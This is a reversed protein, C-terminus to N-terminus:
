AAISGFCTLSSSTRVFIKGNSLAPTAYCPEDLDNCAVVSWDAGPKVVTVKGSESTFYIRGDAAVPSAYYDDLAGELRGVKLVEGTRANLAALIGGNNVFYVIGDYILPTSARPVGKTHSWVTQRKPSEEEPAGIRTSNVAAKGQFVGWFTNWEERTIKGDRDGSERGITRLTRAAQWDKPDNSIDAETIIGDGDKDPFPPISEAPSIVSIITDDVGLIPSAVVGGPLIKVDWNREGSDAAYSVLEHSGLALIENGRVIPTSHNLGFASREVEWKKRGSGSDFGIIFSRAIGDLLLVVTEGVIVPSTGLGWITSFPGLPARWRESGDAAYSVLGYDGFFAYVNSGDTTATPSAAHNLPHKFEQRAPTVGREWVTKGTARDVCLVLLKKGDDATLFVRSDTLVPSSKGMPVGRRWVVNHKPGFTVPYGTGSGIGSGNPGRFRSWHEGPAIAPRQAQSFLSQRSGITGLLSLCAERRTLPIKM